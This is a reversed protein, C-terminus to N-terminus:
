KLQLGEWNKKKLKESSDRITVFSRQFQVGLVRQIGLIFLVGLQKSAPFTLNSFIM